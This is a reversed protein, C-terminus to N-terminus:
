RVLVDVFSEGLGCEAYHKRCMAIKTFVGEYGTVAGAAYVMAGHINFFTVMEGAGTLEDVVLTHIEGPLEYCSRAKTPSGTLFASVARSTGMTVGLPVALAIGILTGLAVRGLSAGMHRILTGDQVADAGAKVVSDLAPFVRPSVDFGRVVAERVVLLTVLPLVFAAASALRGPKGMPVPNRLAAIRYTGIM